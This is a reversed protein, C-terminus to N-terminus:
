WSITQWGIMGGQYLVKVQAGKYDELMRTVQLSDGISVYGDADADNYTFTADTLLSGSTGQIIYSISSLEFKKSARLEIITYFTDFHTADVQTTTGQRILIINEPPKENTNILPGVLLYLIAALVVTVAVMLITGIVPSVSDEEHITASRM